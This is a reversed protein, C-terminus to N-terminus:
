LDKVMCVASSPCLTAFETTSAISPPASSRDIKDFGLKAFFGEATTTLLWLRRVGNKAAADCMAAVLKTALGSKRLGSVVVVSRLLADKGDGELGAFAVTRNDHDLFSFLRCRKDAPNVDPM